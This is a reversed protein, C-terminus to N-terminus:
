KCISWAQRGVLRRQAVEVIRTSRLVSCVHKTQRSKRRARVPGFPSGARERPLPWMDGRLHLHDFFFNPTHDRRMRRRRARPHHAGRRRV